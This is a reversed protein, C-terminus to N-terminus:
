LALFSLRSCMVFFFFFFFSLCDFLWVCFSLGLVWGWSREQGEFIDWGIGFHGAGPAPPQADSTYRNTVARSGTLRICLQKERNPEKEASRRHHIWFDWKQPHDVHTEFRSIRRTTANAATSSTDVRHLRYRFAYFSRFVILRV